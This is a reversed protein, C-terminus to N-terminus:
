PKPPAPNDVIQLGPQKNSQIFAAQAGKEDRLDLGTGDNNAYLLLSRGNPRNDILIVCAANDHNVWLVAREQGDETLLQLRSGQDMKLEGRVRGHDDVLVFYSAEVYKPIGLRGVPLLLYLLILGQGVVLVTLWRTRRRLRGHGTELLELKTLVYDFELPM